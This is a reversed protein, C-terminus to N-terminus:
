KEALAICTGLDAVVTDCGVRDQESHRTEIRALRVGTDGTKDGRSRCYLWLMLLSM